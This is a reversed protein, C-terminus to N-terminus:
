RAMEEVAGLRPDGEQRGARFIRQMAAEVSRIGGGVQCPLRGCIQAVLPENSGKGMAADLDILQVM